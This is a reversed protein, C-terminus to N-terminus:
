RTVRISRDESLGEVKYMYKRTCGVHIKEQTQGAGNGVTIGPVAKYIILIIKTWGPKNFGQLTQVIKNRYAVHRRPDRVQYTLTQGNRLFFKTKKWIKLGYQSMVKNTEFPTAGRQDISIRFGQASTNQDYIGSTVAGNMLSKIEGYPTGGLEADKRMSLEYVDTELTCEPDLANEKTSMNRLTIDLVASQFMMKANDAVRDGAIATPNGDNELNGMYHLDNYWTDTSSSSQLGYLTIGFIGQLNNTSNEFLVSKNFLVVRSGMEKEAVANVKRTFAKWRRKKRYPMSRKKYIAQRDHEFTLGRGSTGRKKRRLAALGRNWKRGRAVRQRKNNRSIYNFRKRYYPMTSALGTLGAALSAGAIVRQKTADRALANWQAGEPIFFSM